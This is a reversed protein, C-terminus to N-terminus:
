NELTESLVALQAFYGEIEKPSILMAKFSFYSFKEFFGSYGNQPEMRLNVVEFCETEKQKQPWFGPAQIKRFNVRSPAATELAGSKPIQDGRPPM